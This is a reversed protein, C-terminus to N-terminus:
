DVGLGYADALEHRVSLERTVLYRDDDPFFRAVSLDDGAFARIADLDRWLSVVEVGVEAQAGSAEALEDTRERFVLVGVNGPTARLAAVGSSELYALYAESDEARVTGRWRRAIVSL